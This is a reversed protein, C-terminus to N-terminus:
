SFWHEPHLAVQMDNTVRAEKEVTWERRSDSVYRDRWEAGHAHAFGPYDQWLVEAPPMHFAVFHLDFLGPVFTEWLARDRDVTSRVDSNGRYHVHPVLRHGLEHIERLADEGALCFPIYFEGRAMIAFTASAGALQAFRAMKTAADLSVDVDHRWFARPATVYLRLLHEQTFDM